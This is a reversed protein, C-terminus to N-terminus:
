FKVKTGPFAVISFEVGVDWGSERGTARITMDWCHLRRRLEYRQRVLENRELDYRHEFALGWNEGLKYGLGYLIERNFLRQQTEAYGFGLRGNLNGGITTDDYYLYSLLRNYDGYRADYQYATEWDWPEGTVWEYLRLLERQLFYPENLDYENDIAHREGVLQWGWWPRPRIDCEVEYDDAKRNENWFDNGQYLTLRAVQWVENTEADRGFVVNDIKSEIRSRGYVNDVADFRPTAEVDMTTEPRYSYTVSPVIIHKFGSFGARGPYAKHLRTQFTAGVTNSYRFAADDEIREESYWTGEMELFPTLSLAEDWDLDLTLRGVNAARAAHLNSPGRKYYGDVADFSFYLREFLPRELWHFTAEPLRETEHIFGHTDKRVTATAIYSPKTFTLNAFTRPETRNRYEDYFFDKYFDRDFWQEAQVLLLLEDTLEHRHFFDAYGREETTYLTHFSGTSRFLRSAPTKMFDYESEVGLGVGEKTTPFLRLGLTADPTVAFQQGANVYYGLKARHGSDFDFAAVDGRFRWRPWYLPTTAGGLQMRIHEGLTMQGNRVSMGKLRLKYHPPDHDCTTVWVDEADASGPGLVRLKAASFYYIGTHGKAREIEGTQKAFDYQLHDATLQRAPEELYLNRAEVAGLSLRRKAQEQEGLNTELLSPEPLESEQPVRYTIDDAQLRSQDQSVLVNAQAHMEGTRQNYRFEDSAFDLTDLRLRVHGKVYLEDSDFSGSFEDGEIDRLPQTWDPPQFGGESVTLDGPKAFAGFFTEKSPETIPAVSPRRKGPRPARTEAGGVPVRRYMSQPVRVGKESARKPGAETTAPKAEPAPQAPSPSTEVSAPKVEAGQWRPAAGCVQWVSAGPSVVVILSGHAALVRGPQALAVTEIPKLSADLSQVAADILVLLRDDDSIVDNAPEDRRGIVAGRGADVVVLGTKTAVAFRDPALGTLATPAADLAVVSTPTNSGHAFIYLAAPERTIVGMHSKTAAVGKPVSAVDTLTETEGPRVTDVLTISDAFSNAVAFKGGPLAAVACAGKDCSVTALLAGEPVRFLSLTGGLYNVCALVASDESLALAVPGLGVPIVALREQTAPDVQWVENRDYVAL